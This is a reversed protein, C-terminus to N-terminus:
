RTSIRPRRCGAMKGYVDVKTKLDDRQKTVREFEARMKSSGKEANIREALLQARNKGLAKDASEYAAVAASRAKDAAAARVGLESVKENLSFVTAHQKAIYEERKQAEKAQKDLAALFDSNAGVALKCDIELDKNDERLSKNRERLANNIGMLREEEKRHREREAELKARWVDDCAALSDAFRKRAGAALPRVDSRLVMEPYGCDLLSSSTASPVHAIISAPATPVPLPTQVSCGDLQQAGVAAPQPLGVALPPADGLSSAVAGAAAGLTPLTLAPASGAPPASAARFVDDATRFVVERERAQLARRFADSDDQKLRFNAQKGMFLKVAKSAKPSGVFERVRKGAALMDDSLSRVDIGLLRAALLGTMAQFM